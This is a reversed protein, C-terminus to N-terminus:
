VQSVRLGFATFLEEEFKLLAAKADKRALIPQKNGHRYNIVNYYYRLCNGFVRRVSTAFEDLSKFTNNRLKDRITPFDIPNPIRKGYFELKTNVKSAFRKGFPLNTLTNIIALCRDTNIGAPSSELKKLLKNIETKFLQLYILCPLNVNYQHFYRLFHLQQMIYM